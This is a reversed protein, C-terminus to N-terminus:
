SPELTGQLLKIHSEILPRKRRSYRWPQGAAVGSGTWSAIPADAVRERGQARLGLYVGEGFASPDQLM